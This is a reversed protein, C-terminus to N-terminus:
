CKHRNLSSRALAGKINLLIELFIPFLFYGGLGVGWIYAPRDERILGYIFAALSATSLVMCTLSHLM